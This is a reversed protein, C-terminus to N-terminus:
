LLHTHYLMSMLVPICCIKSIYV